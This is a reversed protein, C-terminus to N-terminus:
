AVNAEKDKNQDPPEAVVQQSGTDRTSKCCCDFPIANGLTAAFCSKRRPEHDTDAGERVKYLSLSLSLAHM